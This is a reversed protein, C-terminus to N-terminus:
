ILYGAIKVKHFQPYCRYSTRTGHIGSTLMDPNLIIQGDNIIIDKNEPYIMKLNTDTRFDSFYMESSDIFSMKNRYLFEFVYAEVSAFGQDTAGTMITDEWESAM